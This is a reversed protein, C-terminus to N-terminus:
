ATCPVILAISALLVILGLRTNGMAHGLSDLSGSASAVYEDVVIRGHPQSAETAVAVAPGGLPRVIQAFSRPTEHFATFPSRLVGLRSAAAAHPGLCLAAAAHPRGQMVPTKNRRKNRGRPCDNCARVSPDGSLVFTKFPKPQIVTLDRCGLDPQITDRILDYVLGNILHQMQDYAQLGVYGKRFMHTRGTLAQWQEKAVLPWECLHRAERGPLPQLKSREPQQPVMMM